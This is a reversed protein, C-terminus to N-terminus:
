KIRFSVTRETPPGGAVPYAILKLLYDGSPLVQGTPDRGTVGYSYRGPLVDLMQALLGIRGGAPSWLELNVSAVPQVDQGADSRPVAGAVFSLLAPRTDSPTFTRAALHVSSLVAPIRPGFTIVWPIRVPRGALPTITVAGETPADGQIGSTV